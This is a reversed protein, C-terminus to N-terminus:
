RSINKARARSAALWPMSTMIAQWLRLEWAVGVLLMHWRDRERRDTDKRGHNPKSGLVETTSLQKDVGWAVTFGFAHGPSPRQYSAVTESALTRSEHDKTGSGGSDFGGGM